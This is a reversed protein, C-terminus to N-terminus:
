KAGMVLEAPSGEEPAKNASQYAQGSAQAMELELAQQATLASAERKADRQEESAMDEKNVGRTRGLWLIDDESLAPGVGLDFDDVADVVDQYAKLLQIVDSNIESSFCVASDVLITGTGQNYPEYAKSSGTFVSVALAVMALVFTIEILHRATSKRTPADTERQDTM